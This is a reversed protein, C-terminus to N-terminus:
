CESCLSVNHRSQPRAYSINVSAHRQPYSELKGSSAAAYVSIRTPHGTPTRYRPMSYLMPMCTLLSFTVIKSQSCKCKSKNLNSGLIM